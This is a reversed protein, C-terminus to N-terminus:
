KIENKTLIIFLEQYNKKFGITGDSRADRSYDIDCIIGENRGNDVKMEYRCNPFIATIIKHFDNYDNFYLEISDLCSPIDLNTTFYQNELDKIRRYIFMGKKINNM